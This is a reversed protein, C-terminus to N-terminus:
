AQGAIDLCVLSVLQREEAIRRNHPLVPPEIHSGIRGVIGIFPIRHVAVAVGDAAAHLAQGGLIRLVPQITM